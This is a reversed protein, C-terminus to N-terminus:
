IPVYASLWRRKEQTYIFFGPLIGRAFVEHVRDEFKRIEVMKRYMWIAKDRSLEQKKEETMTM